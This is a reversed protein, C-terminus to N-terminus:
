QLVTGDRWGLQHLLIVRLRNVLYRCYTSYGNCWSVVQVLHLLPLAPLVGGERVNAEAM